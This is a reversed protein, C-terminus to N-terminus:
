LRTTVYWVSTVAKMLIELCVPSTPLDRDFFAFCLLFCHIEYEPINRVHYCLYSGWVLVLWEFCAGLYVWWPQTSACMAYSVPEPDGQSVRILSVPSLSNWVALYSAGALMFVLVWGVVVRCLCVSTL